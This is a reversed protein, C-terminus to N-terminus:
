TTYSGELMSVLLAGYTDQDWALGRERALEGIVELAESDLMIQQLAEMGPVGEYAEAMNAPIFADNGLLSTAGVQGGDAVISPVGFAAAEIITM